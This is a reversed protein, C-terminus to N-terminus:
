IREQPPQMGTIVPKGAYQYHLYDAIRLPEDGVEVPVLTNAKRDIKLVVM